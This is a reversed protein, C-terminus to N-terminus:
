EYVEHLFPTGSDKMKESDLSPRLWSGVDGPTPPQWIAYKVRGRRAMRELQPREVRDIFSIMDQRSYFGLVVFSLHSFSALAEDVAKWDLTIWDFDPDNLNPITFTITHVCNHNTNSPSLRLGNSKPRYIFEVSPVTHLSSTKKVDPWKCNMRFVGPSGEVGCHINAHDATACTIGKELIRALTLVVSLEDQTVFHVRRCHFSSTLWVAAQAWDGRCQTMEITHSARDPKPDRM